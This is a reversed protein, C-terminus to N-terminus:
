RIDKIMNTMKCIGVLQGSEDELRFDWVHTSRGKHILQAKATVVGHTMSKIHNASIEIGVAAQKGMVLYTQSAASGLSECLAVNAGGHLLGMPQHVKPGVPMTAEFEGAEPDAKTYRIGLTEMLTGPILGNLIDLLQDQTMEM